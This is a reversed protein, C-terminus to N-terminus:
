DKVSMNRGIGEKERETKVSSEEKIYYKQFILNHM